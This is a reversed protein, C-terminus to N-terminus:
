RRYVRSSAGVKLGLSDHHFLLTGLKLASLNPSEGIDSQNPIVLTAQLTRESHWFNSITACIM